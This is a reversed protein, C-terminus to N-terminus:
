AAEAAKVIARWQKPELPMISLRNGRQVLPLTELEPLQKLAALPLVAQFAQVFRVDVAYWRPQEPKSKPDYYDSDPQFQTPDPYGSRIVEATGAAGIRTCSSHYIIVEDGEAVVDRLWNRAQYNRVGDWSEGRQGRAKLDDIGFVDPESKFLWYAM